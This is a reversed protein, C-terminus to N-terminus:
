VGPTIFGSRTALWHLKDGHAGEARLAHCQPSGSLDQPHPQFAAVHALRPPWAPDAPRPKVGQDSRKTPEEAIWEQETSDARQSRLFSLASRNHEALQLLFQRLSFCSKGVGGPSRSEPDRVLPEGIGPPPTVEVGLVPRGDRQIVAPLLLEDALFASRVRGVPMHVM